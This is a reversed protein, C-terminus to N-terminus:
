GPRGRRGHVVAAHPRRRPHLRLLRECQGALKGEPHRIMCPCTTSTGSPGRATGQRDRRARRADPRPRVIYYVVTEDLLNQDALKNLLRGIWEDVFTIEAAYLERVREITDDDLDVDVVWSYPTEFPQIPM